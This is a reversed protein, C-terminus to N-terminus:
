DEWDYMDYEDSIEFIKKNGAHKRMKVAERLIFLVFLFIVVASWIVAQSGM